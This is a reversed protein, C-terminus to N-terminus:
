LGDKEPGAAGAEARRLAALQAREGEMRSATARHASRARDLEEREAEIEAELEGIRAAIQQRKREFANSRRDIEVGREREAERAALESALRASGTLGDLGLSVDKVELGRPTLLFERAQNSHAMGRSKLVEIIRNREGSAEVTRVLIWTDILSSIGAETQEIAHNPAVLATLMCTIGRTKLFDVLRTLMSTVEGETGMNLLGTIPDMIVVDPRHEDILRQTTVLHMELGHFTPRTAYIHLAGERLWKGLELGISRMNREIQEISEEHTIWLCRGGSACTAHALHAALSSKGSGATGSVLVTSGRFYGKGDLMGDLRSVGTSVHENSVKHALGLSTIPHVTIGRAGILFPYENTGHSSGRYKVVRLSRTSLRNHVRHDLLIVCDSVYEELGHRTLAGSGREGTVVATVGQTKLWRFLRRIEARMIAENSLGTFLTEISDFAVRRGGVAQIAAGLRVFLGELDYEGAEEIENREIHIFEIVLKKERELRALDFGLSAVNAEIEDPVEDFTVLVGPEGLAAGHVLFQIALLSKGCGPGGCVLTPRGRPFGGGTIEDLGAIGTSAKDVAAPPPAKSRKM